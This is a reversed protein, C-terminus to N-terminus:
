LGWGARGSLFRSDTGGHDSGLRSPKLGCNDSLPVRFVRVGGRRFVQEFLPEKELRSVDILRRSGLFTRDSYYVFKVCYKNVLVRVRRNDHLDQVHRALYTRDLYSQYEAIHSRPPSLLFVPTVRAYAYMWLSGDANGDNLVRDDPGAHKALYRFAAVEESRVPSFHQFFARVMKSTAMATPLGMIGFAIVAVVFPALFDALKKPPLLRRLVGTSWGLTVAGFFATFYAFNYAVREPQRFWVTTTVQTILAAPDSLAAILYLVVVIAGGALWTLHRRRAVALALGILVLIALGRQRVPTFIALDAIARVASSLTFTPHRIDAPDVNVIGGLTSLMLAGAVAGVVTGRVVLQRSRRLAGTWGLRGVVLLCSFLVLLALESTHTALISMVGLGSLLASGLGWRATLSQQILVCTAPLMAMGIITGIGGWGMPKYPFLPLMPVLFATFGAVLPADPALERALRYMGVPLVVGAYIVVLGLLADAISSGSIRHVLAAATHLGTPYFNLAGTGVDTALIVDPETTELNAIRASIFGHHSADYNPPPAVGGPLAAAWIVCGIAIGAVLLATAVRISFILDGTVKETLSESWASGGCRSVRARRVSAAVSLVLIMALFLVPTFLMGTLAALEGLIFLLGLSLIPAVAILESVRGM